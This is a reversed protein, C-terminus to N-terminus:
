YSDGADADDDDGEKNKCYCELCDQPFESTSMM